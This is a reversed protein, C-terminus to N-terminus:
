KHPKNKKSRAREIAAVIAQQRAAVTQQRNSQKLLHQQHQQARTLKNSSERQQKAEFRQRAQQAAVQQAAASRPPEIVIDICDMPCPPICLQCGTCADSLVTHMKKPSGIIADVPCAQICKVCGICLAEDIQVRQNPKAKQQMAPILHDVPQNLASGLLQMVRVGGPLCKDLPASGAALATAYPLCGPYDCDQCQTQPLLDNIQETLQNQKTNTM